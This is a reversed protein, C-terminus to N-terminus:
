LEIPIVDVDSGINENMKCKENVIQLNFLVNETLSFGTVNHFM